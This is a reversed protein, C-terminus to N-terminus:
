IGSYNLMSMKSFATYNPSSLFKLWFLVPIFNHTSILLDTQVVKTRMQDTDEPNQLRNMDYKIKYKEGFESYNSKREIDPISPM